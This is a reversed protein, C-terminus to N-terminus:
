GSRRQKAEAQFKAVLNDWGKVRPGATEASSAASANGVSAARGKEKLQQVVKRQGNQSAKASAFKNAILDLKFHIKSRPTSYDIEGENVAIEVASQVQANTLGYESKILGMEAQVSELFSQEKLERREARFEEIERKVEPPLGTQRAPSTPSQILAVLQEVTHTRSLEPNSSLLADVQEYVQARAERAELAQQQAALDKRDEGLAMSKKTYDARMLILDADPVGTDKTEVQTDVEEGTTEDSIADEQPADHRTATIANEEDRGAYEPKDTTVNEVKDAPAPATDRGKYPAEIAM